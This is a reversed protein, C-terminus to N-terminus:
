YPYLHIDTHIPIKGKNLVYMLSLYLSINAREGKGLAPDVSTKGEGATSM